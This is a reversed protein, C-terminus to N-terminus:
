FSSLYSKEKNNDVPECFHNIVFGNLNDKIGWPKYFDNNVNYYLM